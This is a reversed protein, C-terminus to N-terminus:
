RPAWPACARSLSPSTSTGPSRPGRQGPRKQRASPLRHTRCRAQRARFRVIAVAFNIAAGVYTAIAMDFVRLLYFGAFYAGSCPARSTAATCSGSGPSAKRADGGGLARHGAAVRGDLLTPPLLCIAAVVARLFSARCATSRSQRTCRISCAPHAFLVVIRLIGIGLELLRLRALPHQAASVFRPLLLSGLCMGGMYTGLLVGLRFAGLIRDGIAAVTALRNRLDAGRLRQRRVAVSSCAFVPASSRPEFTRFQLFDSHYPTNHEHSLEPESISPWHAM